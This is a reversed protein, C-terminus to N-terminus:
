DPCNDMKQKKRESADLGFLDCMDEANNIDDEEAKCKPCNKPKM